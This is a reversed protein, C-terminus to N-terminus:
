DDDEIFVPLEADAQLIVLSTPLKVAWEDVVIPATLPNNQQERIETAIDVYPASVGSLDPVDTGGWIEATDLYHILVPEYGPRVPAVVRAAGAQLFALHDLDTNDLGIKEVWTQKRGWFYPYMVYSLNSWEFANEFFQIYKGEPIAQEFDIEPFDGDQIAGFLDFHQGTLVSIVSRKIENREIARNREPAFGQIQNAQRIGEVAVQEDFESKMKQYGELLAKYTKIQWKTYAEPTRQCYVTVHVSVARNGNFSVSIPLEGSLPDLNFVRKHGNIEGAGSAAAVHLTIGDGSTSRSRTFVVKYAAYGENITIKKSTSQSQVGDTQAYSFNEAQTSYRLPPPDLDTVQYVSALKRYDHEGDPDDSLSEATLLLIQDDPKDMTLGKPPASFLAQAFFVAPEPIVFELMLRQGYNLLRAQMIKDVWRYVGVTHADNDKNDFGHKNIEEIEETTKRTREERVKEVVRNKARETVERSFDSASKKSSEASLSLSASTNAGVSVTPGYSASLNFGAELKSDAKIVESAEQSLQFRETSQLDREKETERETFTSFSEETKELRRHSRDKYEGAMINEIHAIEGLEYKKPEERVLMLDGIGLIRAYGVGEPVVLDPPRLGPVGPPAPPVGPGGPIGPRPGGPHYAMVHGQYFMYRTTGATASKSSAELARVKEHITRIAEPLTEVSLGLGVRFLASKAADGIQLLSAGVEREKRRQAEIKHALTRKRELQKELSREGDDTVDEDFTEDDQAGASIEAHLEVLRGHARRLETLKAAREDAGAKEHVRNELSETKEARGKAASVTPLEVTVTELFAKVTKGPKPERFTDSKEVLRAAAILKYTSKYLRSNPEGSERLALATELLRLRDALFEESRLVDGPKAGTSTEITKAVDITEVDELKSFADAVKMLPSKLKATDDIFDAKKRFDTAVADRAQKDKAKRLEALLTSHEMLKSGKVTKEDSATRPPRVSVFRFLENM